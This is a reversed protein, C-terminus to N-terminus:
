PMEMLQWYRNLTLLVEVFNHFTVPKLLYGAVNLQYAEIRDREENSTTLVVVCLSKLTPDKRIARLFEIGNMKPMNIDLLVLLRRAPLAGSRLLELAAVGDGAIHLPIELGAKKLARQVNMVDIDDDDVLLITLSRADVSATSSM